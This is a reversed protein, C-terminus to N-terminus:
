RGVLAVLRSLESGFIEICQARTWPTWEPTGYRIALPDKLLLKITIGLSKRIQTATWPTMHHAESAAAKLDACKIKLKWEAPLQRPLGVRLHAAEQLGADIRKYGNGLFPKLPRIPDFCGLLGESVDHKLTALELPPNPNGPNSQRYIELALLAHQADRIKEEHSSAGGWRITDAQGIVMDEYELDLPSPHILDLVRGSPQLVLASADHAAMFAFDAALEGSAMAPDLGHTECLIQFAMTFETPLM